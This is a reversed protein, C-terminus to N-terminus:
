EGFFYAVSLGFVGNTVSVSSSSSSKYINALGSNYFLNFALKKETLEYGGLLSLGVDIGNFETIKDGEEDTAGAQFGFYPGLGGFVKGNGTEIKYVAHVPLEIYSFSATNGNITGGKMSYLLQPRLMIQETLPVEAVGGLHIGFKGSTNLNVGSSSFRITSSQLGGVIGFRTPTQAAAVSILGLLTLACLVTKKM